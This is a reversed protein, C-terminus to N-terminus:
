FYSYVVTLYFTKIGNNSLLCKVVTVAIICMINSFIMLHLSFWFPNFFFFYFVISLSLEFFFNFIFANFSYVNFWHSYRVTNFFLLFVFFNFVTFSYMLFEVLAFGLFPFFNLLFIWMMLCLYKSPLILEIWRTRIMIMRLRCWHLGLSVETCGIFLSWM